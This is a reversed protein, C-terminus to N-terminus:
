ASANATGFGTESSEHAKNYADWGSVPPFHRTFFIYLELSSKALRPFYEAAKGQRKLLRRANRAEGPGYLSKIAGHRAVEM